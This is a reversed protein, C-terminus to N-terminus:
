YPELNPTGAAVWAKLLDYDLDALPADFPMQEVGNAGDIVEFLAGGFYTPNDVDLVVLSAASAEVTDFAYGMTKTTTSHCQVQGCSPALVELSVVELTLPREDPTTGCAAGLALVATLFTRM